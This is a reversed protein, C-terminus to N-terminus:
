REAGDISYSTPTGEEDLFIIVQNRGPFPTRRAGEASAKGQRVEVTFLLEETLHAPQTVPLHPAQDRRKWLRLLQLLLAQGHTQLQKLSFLRFPEQQAAYTASATTEGVVAPQWDYHRPVSTEQADISSLRVQEAEDGLENLDLAPIPLILRPVTVELNVILERDTNM